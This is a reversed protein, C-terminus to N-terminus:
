ALPAREWLSEGASSRRAVFCACAPAGAHRVCPQCRSDGVRRQRVGCVRDGRRVFAVPAAVRVDRGSPVQWGLRCPLAGSAAHGSLGLAVFRLPVRDDLPTRGFRFSGGGLVEGCLWYLAFHARGVQSNDSPAGNGSNTAWNPWAHPKSCPRWKAVVCAQTQPPDQM